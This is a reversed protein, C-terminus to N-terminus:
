TAPKRAGGVLAENRITDTTTSPQASPINAPMEEKMIHQSSPHMMRGNDSKCGDV